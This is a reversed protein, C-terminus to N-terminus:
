RTVALEAVPVRHVRTDGLTFVTDLFTEFPPMLGDAYREREIGGVVVYTAGLERLAALAEEAGPATYVRDVLSQRRAIEPRARAGRWQLQHGPWGVPAQRGTNVSM